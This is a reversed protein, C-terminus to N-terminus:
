HPSRVGTGRARSDPVRRNVRRRSVLSLALACVAIGLGTAPEPTPTPDCIDGVGDFDTDVQSDNAHGPCNDLGDLVADLDRNIGVRFGSGPAVCTYTLPGETIALARLSADGILAAATPDNDGQFLGSALRTWGRSVNGVRGKVILECETTAGDLLLSVFPVSARAIMLNIRSEVVVANTSDLTVQQGVIPALDNDFQLMFAETNRRTTDDPFVFNQASVFRFLTDVSGDKLFGFGRIQDGMQQIGVGIPALLGFM